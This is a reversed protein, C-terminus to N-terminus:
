LRSAVGLGEVEAKSGFPPTDMPPFGDVPDPSLEPIEVPELLSLSPVNLRVAPSEPSEPPDEEMVASEDNVLLLPLKVRLRLEPSPSALPPATVVSPPPPVVVRPPETVTEDTSPVPDLAPPTDKDFLGPVDPEGDM